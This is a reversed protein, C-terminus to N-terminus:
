QVEKVIPLTLIAEMHPFVRTTESRYGGFTILSQPCKEVAKNFVGIAEKIAEPDTFQPKANDFM